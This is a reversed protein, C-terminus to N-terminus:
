HVLIVGHYMQSQQLGRVNRPPNSRHYQWYFTQCPLMYHNWNNKHRMLSMADVNNNSNNNGDDNDIVNNANGGNDICDMILSDDDGGGAGVASNSGGGGGGGLLDTNFIRNIAIVAAEKLLSRIDAGVFGPTKKALLAYDVNDNVRITCTMARLIGERAGEDPAGLVIERDFRGARRLAPDIADPRNTAGLVLVAAGNTTNKPHISDLSTLLQAVIRQEMGRGSGGGGSGSGRKPAISDIEDIFIISPANYRASDFLSRIRSESEGSVGGVLEPASVQYYNVNLEGAIARALHTKGCGPPGRLLVGRPPDIGLHIFLEPHSLPYEILERLQTVLPLIGGLNSYRETPRTSPQIIMGDNSLMMRSSSSSSSSTKLPTTTTNSNKRKTGKKKSSKTNSRQTPTTTITTATTTKPTTPLSSTNLLNNTEDDDNCPPPISSNKEDAASNNNNYDEEVEKDATSTATETAEMKERERQIDRYRNRLTANLMGGGGHNGNSNSDITDMYNDSNTIISRSPSRVIIEKDKNNDHNNNNLTTPTTSGGGIPVVARGRKRSSNNADNGISSNNSSAGFKSNELIHYFALHVHETVWSIEKRQYERHLDIITCTTSQIADHIDSGSTPDILNSNQSVIRKAIQYLKYDVGDPPPPTICCDSDSSSSQIKATGTASVTPTSTASPPPIPSVSGSKYFRIGQQQHQQKTPSSGGNAVSSIM